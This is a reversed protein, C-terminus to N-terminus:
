INPFFFFPGPNLFLQASLIHDSNTVVVGARKRNRSKSILNQPFIQPPPHPENNNEYGNKASSIDLYFNVRQERNM